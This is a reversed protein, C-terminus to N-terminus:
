SSRSLEKAGYMSADARETIQVFPATKVAVPQNANEAHATFAVAFPGAVWIRLAISLINM